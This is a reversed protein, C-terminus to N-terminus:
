DTSKNTPFVLIMQGDGEQGTWLEKRRDLIGDATEQPIKDERVLAELRKALGM